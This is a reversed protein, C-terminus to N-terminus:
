RLSAPPASIEQEALQPVRPRFRNKLVSVNFDIPLGAKWGGLQFWILLQGERISM